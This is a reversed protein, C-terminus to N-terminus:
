KKGKQKSITFRIKNGVRVSSIDTNKPLEVDFYNVGGWTAKCEHNRHKSYVVLTCTPKKSM